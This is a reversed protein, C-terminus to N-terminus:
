KLYHHNYSFAKFQESQQLEPVKLTIVIYLSPRDLWKFLFSGNEYYLGNGHEYLKKIVVLSIEISCFCM